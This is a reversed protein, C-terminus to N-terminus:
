RRTARLFRIMNTTDANGIERALAALAAAVASPDDPRVSKDDGFIVGSHPCEEVAWQRLLDPISRLDYTVFTWRDERCATLIDSDNARLFAGGRWDALHAVVLGPTRKRFAGVTAKAIHCDLLLKV